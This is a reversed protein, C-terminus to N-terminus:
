EPTSSRRDSIFAGIAALGLSAVALADSPMERFGSTHIHNGLTGAINAVAYYVGFHGIATYARDGISPKMLKHPDPEVGMYRTTM